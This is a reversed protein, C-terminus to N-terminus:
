YIFPVFAKTHHAWTEFQDGYHAGLHRSLSPIFTFVFLGTIFAPILASWPNHTVIAWGTVWLADGFYNIHRAYGFLGRTYLRGQNEPKEKFHKRQLESATNLLSGSIFLLVGIFDLTGFPSTRGTALLAFVVQYLFLALLVGGAESWDFKRKLLYFLALTMRVFLIIGFALLVTRRLPDAPLHSESDIWGVITPGGGLFLIWFAGALFLVHFATTVLRPTWTTEMEGHM